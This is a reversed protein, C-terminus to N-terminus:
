SCATNEKAVPMMIKKNEVISYEYKMRKQENRYKALNILLVSGLIVVFGSTQVLSIHEGAFYVGLLVAVVPNVYAYTSVQTAPRVQLLWVYASYAALSGFLILYLLSLWSITTVSQLEFGNWEHLLFSGLMFATGAALMQWASSVTTSGSSHYKSYLSGGAWSISGIILIFFGIIEYNSGTSSVAVAAKESFLLIVGIFGIILGHITSRNTLNEKWKPKDLAVFWIPASSLLIAVFSSPLSKEVWIVAGNGVLLLLLGSIIAPKIQRWTGIREGKLLCWGMMLLGAILFRLAGLIMPPIHQVAKQIFFYTSGWVLYVTAFAVIVMVPSVSKKSTISM